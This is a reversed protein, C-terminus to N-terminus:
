AGGDSGAAREVALGTRYGNWGHVPGMLFFVLGSLAPYRPLAVACALSRLGIGVSLLHGRLSGRTAIREAADLELADELRWARRYMAALVAFIGVFGGSYFLM